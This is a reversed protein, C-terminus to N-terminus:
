SVGETLQVVYRGAFRVALVGDEWIEAHLELRARGKRKLTALFRAIEEAPPLCCRATFNQVIPRLYQITSDQIVINGVLKQEDLLLWLLSWGALTAVANISGAFATEKHNINHRLPASLHFCGRDYSAVWLGLAATIPIEINLTQQLRNLRDM